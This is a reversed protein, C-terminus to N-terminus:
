PLHNFMPWQTMGELSTPLPLAIRSLQETSQFEMETIISFINQMVPIFRFGYSYAMRPRHMSTPAIYCFDDANCEFRAEIILTSINRLFFQIEFMYM